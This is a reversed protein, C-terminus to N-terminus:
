VLRASAFTSTYAPPLLAVILTLLTDASFVLKQWASRDLARRKANALGLNMPRLDTEVTRLWSQRPHGIRRRWNIPPGSICAQLAQHHHRPRRQSSTWLLASPSQLCHRVLVAAWHRASSIGDNTVFEWWHSNLIRRHYWVARRDDKNILDSHTYALYRGTLELCEGSISKHPTVDTFITKGCERDVVILLCFRLLRSRRWVMEEGGVAPGRQWM